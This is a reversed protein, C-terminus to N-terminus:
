AEFRLKKDKESVVLRILQARTETMHSVSEANDCFIPFDIKYHAGLTDILELGANVRSANNASKFPVLGSACPILAECCDAIGGNQQEIFLQFSLTKFQKNIKESLLSAATRTYLDCMYLGKELDEYKEALEVEEAELEKIRQDQQAALQLCAKGERRKEIETDISDIERRREATLAASAAKKDSFLQEYERLKADFAKAIDTEDFPVEKVVTQEALYIQREIEKITIEEDSIQQDVADIKEQVEKLLTASCETQGKQTIEELRQSKKVNFVTKAREIQDEPLKQGCTPCIEKGSWEQGSLEQWESLLQTRQHKMRDRRAELEGKEYILNLSNKQESNLLVRLNSIKEYARKNKDAQQTSHAAAAEAREKEVEARGKMLATDAEQLVATIAAEKERKQETLTVIEVDLKVPDIGSVDPKAKTAEDIRNPIEKLKKDTLTREKSAIGQYEEITYHDNTSGPKLLVMDIDELEPEKKMVADISVNGCVDLLIKRRAAPKMEELFYNYMTLMKTLEEDVFITQLKQKYKTESIPVGDIEYETTHGQFVQEANGRTTGYKEKFTKKLRMQAGSELEIVMEVVSNLHHSGTPKPTYGKEGTSAKGFMLWTFANYITTKGTGNDGYIACSKGEPCFFFEKVGQFNQLEMSIIKM